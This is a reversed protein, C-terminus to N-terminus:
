VCVCGCVSVCVCVCVCTPCPNDMSLFSSDTAQFSCHLLSSILMSDPSCSESTVRGLNLTETSTSVGDLNLTLRLSGSNFSLNWSPVHLMQKDLKGPASDWQTDRGSRPSGCQTGGLTGEMEGQHFGRM